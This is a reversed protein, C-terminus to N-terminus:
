ATNGQLLRVVDEKAMESSPWVPGVSCKELGILQLLEDSLEWLADDTSSDFTYIVGVEESDVLVSINHKM